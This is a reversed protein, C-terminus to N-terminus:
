PEFVNKSWFINKDLIISPGFFKLYFFFELFMKPGIPKTHEARLNLTHTSIIIIMPPQLIQSEFIMTSSTM